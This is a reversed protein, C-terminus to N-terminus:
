SFSFPPEFGGKRTGSSLLEELAGDDPGGKPDSRVVRRVILPGRVYMQEVLGGDSRYLRLDPAWPIPLPLTPPYVGLPLPARNFVGRTM